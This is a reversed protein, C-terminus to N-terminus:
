SRRVSVGWHHGSELYDAAARLRAADDRMKGISTNCESCLLGRISLTTHCHDVDFHKRGRTPAGKCIACVGRQAALMAEYKEVTLGHFRKLSVHRHAAQRKGTLEPHAAWYRRQRECGYARMCPVCYSHTFGNYRVSFATRPLTEKCRPCFKTESSGLGKAIHAASIRANHEATRQHKGM